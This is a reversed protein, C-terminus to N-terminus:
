CARLKGQVEMGAGRLAKPKKKSIILFLMSSTSSTQYRQQWSDTTQQAAPKRIHLIKNLLVLIVDNSTGSHCHGMTFLDPM